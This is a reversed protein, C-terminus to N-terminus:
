CINKTNKTPIQPAAATITPICTPFPSWSSAYLTARRKATIVHANNETGNKNHKAIGNKRQERYLGLGGTGNSGITKQKITTPYCYSHYLVRKDATYEARAAICFGTTNVFHYTKVTDSNGCNQYRSKQYFRRMKDNYYDNHKNRFVHALAYKTDTM